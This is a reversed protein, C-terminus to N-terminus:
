KWWAVIRLCNLVRLIWTDWVNETEDQQQLFVADMEGIIWHCKHPNTDTLDSGLLSTLCDTHSTCQSFCVATDAMSEQKDISFLCLQLCHCRHFNQQLQPTLLSAPRTGSTSLLTVPYTHTPQCSHTIHPSHLIIMGGMAGQGGSFLCHQYQSAQFNSRQWLSSIAAAMSLGTCSIVQLQQYRQPRTADGATLCTSCGGPHQKSNDKNTDKLWHYCVLFQNNALLRNCYIM